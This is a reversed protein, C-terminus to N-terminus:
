SFLTKIDELRGNVHFRAFLAMTLDVMHLSRSVVVSKRSGPLGTVSVAITGKSVSQGM